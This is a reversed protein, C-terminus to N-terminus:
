DSIVLGHQRLTARLEDCASFVSSRLARLAFDPEDDRRSKSCAEHITQMFTAAAMTLYNRSKPFVLTAPSVCEVLAEVVQELNVASKAKPLKLVANRVNQRCSMLIQSFKRDDEDLVGKCPGCDANEMSKQLLSSSSSSNTSASTHGERDLSADKGVLNKWITELEALDDGLISVTQLDQLDGAIKREWMTATIYQRLTKHSVVESLASSLSMSSLVEILTRRNKRRLSGLSRLTNSGTRRSVPPSLLKSKLFSDCKPHRACERRLLMNYIQSSKRFYKLATDLNGEAREIEGIKYLNMAIEVNNNICVDDGDNDVGYIKKRMKLSKILYTKAGAFNKESFCSNGLSTLVAAVNVHAVGQGYLEVYMGMAEDLIDRAEVRKGQYELVQALKQLTAARGGIGFPGNHMVNLAERLLSEALDLRRPKSSLAVVALQHLTAAEESFRMAKATEPDAEEGHGQSTLGRKMCLSQNLLDRASEWEAQKIHLVGLEHLTAAIDYSSSTLSTMSGGRLQLAGHLFQAAEKYQGCYRAVKGATHMTFALSEGLRKSLGLYDLSVGPGTQPEVDGEEVPPLLGDTQISLAIKLVDHAEKFRSLAMSMYLASETLLKSARIQLEWALSWRSRHHHRDDHGAVGTIIGTMEPPAKVM